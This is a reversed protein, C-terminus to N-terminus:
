AKSSQICAAAKRQEVGAVISVLLVPVPPQTSYLGEAQYRFQQPCESGEFFAYDSIWQILQTPDNGLPDSKTQLLKLYPGFLPKGYQSVGYDAFLQQGEDSALYKILQMSGDFNTKTMNANRPDDAIASYVNLMSKGGEVLKVLDINHNNFNLLYSATDSLTYGRKENAVKLTATMGSAAELYWPQEQRSKEKILQKVDLGVAKWLSVEKTYTGSNDGRSIWIATGNLGASRIAKFADSPSKGKIGAPDESPGVVVFFNYAVIKRNVGYGGKLFPYEQSPAHVLLMDADGRMATQIALGTGQSIFSVNMNPYKLEFKTKLYDLFGTEYLSTTTSVILRTRASPVSMSYYAYAGAAIGCVVVVILLSAQLKTIASRNMFPCKASCHIRVFIVSKWL